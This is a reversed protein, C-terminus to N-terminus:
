PSVSSSVLSLSLHRFKTKPSLFGNYLPCARINNNNNNNNNNDDDDDDDDDYDDNRTV